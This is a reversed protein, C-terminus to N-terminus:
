PFFKSPYIHRLRRQFTMCMDFNLGPLTSFSKHATPGGAPISVVGKRHRSVAPWHAVATASRELSHGAENGSSNNVRQFNGLM